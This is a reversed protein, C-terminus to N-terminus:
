HHPPFTNVTLYPSVKQTYKLYIDCKLFYSDNWPLNGFVQSKLLYASWVDRKFPVTGNKAIDRGDRGKLLFAM